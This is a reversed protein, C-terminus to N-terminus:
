SKNIRDQAVYEKNKHVHYRVDRGLQNGTQQALEVAFGKFLGPLIGKLYTITALDVASIGLDDRMKDVLKHALFSERMVLSEADSFETIADLTDNQISSDCALDEKGQEPDEEYIVLTRDLEGHFLSRGVSFTGYGSDSQQEFNGRPHSLNDLSSDIHPKASLSQSHRVAEPIAMDSVGQDSGTMSTREEHKVTSPQRGTVYFEDHSCRINWSELIPVFKEM